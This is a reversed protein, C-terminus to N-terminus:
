AATLLPLVLAREAPRGYGIRTVKAPLEAMAAADRVLPGLNLARRSGAAGYYSPPHRAGIATPAFAGPLSRCRRRHAPGLRGYGDLTEIPALASGPKRLRRGLGDRRDTACTSSCGRSRRVECWDANATTTFRAGDGAASASVLPTGDTLRAWTKGGLDITPEALVKDRAVTVEPPVKLGKFPGEEAFAALHGAQGLFAAGLMRDGVRLRVPLLSDAGANEALHPGAFRLLVGGREM